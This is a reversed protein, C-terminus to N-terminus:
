EKTSTIAKEDPGIQTTAITADNARQRSTRDSGPQRVEFWRKGHGWNSSKQCSVSSEMAHASGESATFAAKCRQCIALSHGPLHVVPDMVDPHNEMVIALPREM